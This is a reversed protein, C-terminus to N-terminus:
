FWRREGGDCAYEYSTSEIFQPYSTDGVKQWIITETTHANGTRVCHHEDIFRQQYVIAVITIGVFGVIIAAGWWWDRWDRLLDM